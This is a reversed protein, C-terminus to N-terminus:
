IELQAGDRASTNYSTASLATAIPRRPARSQVREGVSVDILVLVFPQFASSVNKPDWTIVPTGRQGSPPFCCVNVFSKM